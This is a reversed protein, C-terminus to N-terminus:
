VTEAQWFIVRNRGKSKAQYMADDAHALLDKLEYGSSKTETVGFSASVDIDCGTEKIDIKNITQRCEEAINMAQELDCGPLIIAFEEGGIRGFIDAKRVCASCAHAALQLVKDGALHGFSDNVKKFHDLDFMILSVASNNKALTKLITSASKTFHTRNCIRTLGDYEALFKLRQQSRKIYFLWLIMLSVSLILLSIIWRNAAVEEKALNQELQLIQNQQNLLAIQNDREVARHKASEVALQKAKTQEFLSEKSQIYKDQYALALDFNENEKASASLVEYASVMTKLYRNTSEFGAVVLAYKKAKAFDHIDLYAQALLSNTEVILLQYHTNKIEELINELLAILQKPKKNVLYYTALYTKLVYVVVLENEKTCTAVANLIENEISQFNSVSLDAKLKVSLALCRNRGTVQEDLLRNAFIGAMEYQELENYFIGAAILGQHRIDINLIDNYDTAINDLYEFGDQWNKKLAYLNVLSLSARYNLEADKSNEVVYKYRGIAEKILGKYASSYGRLYLYYYKQRESLQDFKPEIESLILSFSKNHSSKVFDAKELQEDIQSSDLSWILSSYFFLGM